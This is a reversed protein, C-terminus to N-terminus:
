SRGYTERLTVNDDIDTKWHICMENVDMVYIIM